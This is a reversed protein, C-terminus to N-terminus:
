LRSRRIDTWELEQEQGLVLRVFEGIMESQDTFVLRHAKSRNGTSALPVGGAICGSVTAALTSASDVLEVDPGAVRALLPALLPYHTCGLVLTDVEDALLPALYREAVAETVSDDLWGQEVLPVFLACARSSVRLDGRRRTIAREYAGSRVTSETALVGIHGRSVRVAQEAGPELVGWVPVPAELGDLATASATNCAVVIAKVDQAVLWDVNMETYRRVTEASKTGYPLRATDGLYLFSESPLASELAAVVTLGGVGSDFVGIPRDDVSGQKM